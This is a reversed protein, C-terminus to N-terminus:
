LEAEAENFIYRRIVEAVGHENNSFTVADAAAKVEEQANEMAVGLGVAEIAKIDNLSDGVAIVEDMHIGMHECLAELASAKSVGLPNIELNYISSNSIELGQWAEIESRIAQIIEIDEDYYGFKLWEHATLEGQLEHWSDKNYIRKTTYAWFWTNPYQTTVGHLKSIWDADLTKRQLLVHPKSWIEGGNVTIMPSDLGMDVAYDIANIFGRGTSFIVTVGAEVAKRIWKLNLDTIHLDDNLLTGDMDLALLKYATM